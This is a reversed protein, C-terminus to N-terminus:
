LSGYLIVFMEDSVLFIWTQMCSGDRVSQHCHCLGFDRFTIWGWGRPPRSLAVASLHLHPLHGLCCPGPVIVQVISNIYVTKATVAAATIKGRGFEIVEWSCWVSRCACCRGDVCVLGVTSFFVFIYIRDNYFRERRRRRIQRPWKFCTKRSKKLYIKKKGNMNIFHRNLLFIICSKRERQRTLIYTICIAFYTPHHPRTSATWKSYKTGTKLYKAAWDTRGSVLRPIRETVAGSTPVSIRTSAASVVPPASAIMTPPGVYNIAQLTGSPHKSKM